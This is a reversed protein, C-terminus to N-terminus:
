IEQLVDMEGATFAGFILVAGSEGPNSTPGIRLGSGDIELRLPVGTTLAYM